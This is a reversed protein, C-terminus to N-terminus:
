ILFPLFYPGGECVVTRSAVIQRIKRRKIGCSEERGFMDGIDERVSVDLPKGFITDVLADVRARAANSTLALPLISPTWM